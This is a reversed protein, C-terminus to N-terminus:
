KRKGFVRRFIEDVHRLVHSLDFCERIEQPRLHKLIARDRLLVREFDKKGRLAQFAARQVLAYAEERSLGKQVLRLLLGESFVLGKTKELNAKMNEPYVVLNAMLNTMRHLMYDLLTTCDPAIIREVSSHSIDREHWLPVNEMAAVANGRIVRALGAINESAIPNRKHPMASSGKQGEAFPEEAENVETRQLHRIEVAIKELSTAMLALTTFFEAYRDRQIIQSSIPAPKLGGKKCVHAEVKPSLHAFTGVAGSIKGYSVREKARALRERNRDMESYWLALKLGFTTPEAHMGHTRGIIPTDKHEASRKKLVELFAQVDMELLEAAERLQMAFSTDLVDSSTMGMHLYRAEPGIREGVATLFAIVDHKVVKELADIRPIDFGAKRKIVGLAEPPVWGLRAMAECAWVEIQLWKQFRNEPEWIKAMAQRTYRPIM